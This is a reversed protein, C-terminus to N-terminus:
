GKPSYRNINAIILKLVSVDILLFQKVFGWFKKLSKLVIIFDGVNKRRKSNKKEM